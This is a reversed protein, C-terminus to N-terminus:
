SAGGGAPVDECREADGADDRDDAVEHAPRGRQRGHDQNGDVDVAVRLAL